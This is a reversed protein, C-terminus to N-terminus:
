YGLAIWYINGSYNCYLTFSSNGASAVNVAVGVGGVSIITGTVSLTGSPFSLPYTVVVSTGNTNAQGWQIILGGTLKAYGNASLNLSGVGANISGSVNLDGSLNTVLANLNLASLNQGAAGTINLQNPMGSTPYWEIFGGGNGGPNSEFYVSGVGNGVSISSAGTGNVVLSGDIIMNGYGDDLVNTSIAYPNSTANYSSPNIHQTSWSGFSNYTIGNVIQTATTPTYVLAAGGIGTNLAHDDWIMFAGQWDSAIGYVRGGYATQGNSMVTGPTVKNYLFLTSNYTNGSIAIFPDLDGSTQKAIQVFNNADFNVVISNTVNLNGTISTNDNITLYGSSATIIDWYGTTLNNALNHQIIQFASKSDAYYVGADNINSYLYINPNNGGIYYAGVHAEAIGNTGAVSVAEGNVTVGGNATTVGNVSVSNNITLPQNITMASPNSGFSLVGNNYFNLIGDSPSFMGTDQGADLTFSYGGNTGSGEAALFKGNSQINSFVVSSTTSVSQNMGAAYVDQADNLVRHWTQWGGNGARYYMSSDTYGHGLQWGRNGNATDSISLLSLNWTGSPYNAVSTNGAGSDFNILWAGGYPLGNPGQPNYVLVSGLNQSSLESSFLASTGSIASGFSSTGSVSLTGSASINIFSGNAGSISTNNISGGSIQANPTTMVTFSGTAGSIPTNIISGGSIQVTTATLSSTTLNTSSISPVSLSSKVTLLGASNISMLPSSPTYAWKTGSSDMYWSFAGIDAMMTYTYIGGDPDLGDYFQWYGASGGTIRVEGGNYVYYVGADTTINSGYVNYPSSLVLLDGIATTTSAIINMSTLSNGSTGAINVVNPMNASPNWELTCGGSGNQNSALLLYGVNNGVSISVEGSNNVLINNNMLGFNGTSKNYSMLDVLTGTSPSYNIGVLSSNNFGYLMSSDTTLYSVFRSETSTQSYLYEGSTIRGGSTISGYLNLSGISSIQNSNLNLMALSSNNLGSITLQNINGSNPSWELLGGSSSSTATLLLTGLNGGASLLTSITGAVTLQTPSVVILGNAIDFNNTTKNYFIIDNISNNSNTFRVGAQNTNDYLSILTQDTHTFYSGSEPLSTNISVLSGGVINVTGSNSLVNVGGGSYFGLSTQNSVRVFPKNSVDLGVTLIRNDTSSFSSPLNNKNIWVISEEYDLTTPATISFNTYLNVNNASFNTVSASAPILSGISTNDVTGGSIVTNQFTSNASTLTLFQGYSQVISVDTLTTSAIPSTITETKLWYASQPYGNLLLANTVNGTFEINSPLGSSNTSTALNIGPNLTTFGPYTSPLNITFSQDKSVVAIVFNSVVMKAIYHQNGQTDVVVDGLLGTLGESSTYTPGILVWQVGNWFNLQQTTTNWWQNGNTPSTPPTASIYVGGVLAWQATTSFTASETCVKLHQSNIDWWLQGVLANAPASTNAFNEMIHIFNENLFTGYNSYDRGVLTISSSTEDVTSDVVTTLMNGNTLVINYTM